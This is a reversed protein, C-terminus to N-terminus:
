VFLPLEPYAAGLVDKPDTGFWRALLTGYVSRFDTTFKLDGNDDLNGLSPTEGYLGGRVGGGMVFVPTATGHDTGASGNERVRRGFETWMLTLVEGDIGRAALDAYFAAVSESVARLLRPQSNAQGAHSDFGGTTVYCIGTGLNSTILQAATRLASALANGPYTAMPEYSATSAKLDLTSQYADEGVKSVFALAGGLAAQSAHLRVWDTIRRSTQASAAPDTRLAYTQVSGISPVFSLRSDFSEPLETGVNAARWRSHQEHSTADLLRGLWGTRVDEATSATHWIEMSRFHSRNPDPYGVGQVVAVQGRDYLAKLGTLEPHLAVTGDLHLAAEPNVGIRPRADFYLGETYPIVTNLGDNGGGLQLVVLVRRRSTVGAPVGEAFAARVFAAPLVSGLGVVAMGKTIFGRRGLPRQLAVASELPEAVRTNVSEPRLSAAV